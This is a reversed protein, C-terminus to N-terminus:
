GQAGRIAQILQERDMSSRGEIELEQAWHYIDERKLSDLRENRAKTVAEQLEAKNMYGRGEIELEQARQYLEEKTPESKGNDAQGEPEANRVANDATKATRDATKEATDIATATAKRAVKATEATAKRSTEAVQETTERTAAVGRDASEATKDAMRGALDAVKDQNQCTLTMTQNALGRGNEQLRHVFEGQMGFVTGTLDRAYQIMMNQLTGVAELQGQYFGPLDEIRRVETAARVRELTLELYGHLTEMQLSVIRELGTAAARNNRALSVAMARPQNTASQMTSQTQPM